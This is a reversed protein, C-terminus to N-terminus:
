ASGREAPPQALAKRLGIWAVLAWGVLLATGGIPTIAGLWGQQTLALLYLSGCFIVVGVLFAIAAARTARCAPLLAVFGLAAAHYFQYTAALEWHEMQKPSFRGELGHAGFAGAAVALFGVVGALALRGNSM